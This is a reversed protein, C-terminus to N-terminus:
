RKRAPKPTCTRYKRTSVVTRGARTRARVRVTFRGKPLGTLRVRSTLRRGRVVRSRKGNVFVTASALPDGKPHQLRIGFARRSVCKDNCKRFRVSITRAKKGRARFTVKATLRHNGAGLRAPDVRAVFQGHRDPKRVTRLKRGDVMFRVHRVGKLTVYANFPKLACKGNLGLRLVQLAARKVANAVPSPTQTGAVQGSTAADSDGGTPIPGGGGGATNVCLTISASRDSTLGTTTDTAEATLVHNGDSLNTLSASWAGTTPDADAFAVAVTGDLLTVKTGPPATGTVTADRTTLCGTPATVAPAAPPTSGGGGGPTECARAIVDLGSVWDQLSADLASSSRTNVSMRRFFKCPADTPGNVADALSQLNVAAEGFTGTLFSSLGGGTPLFNTIGASNLSAEAGGAALTVPDFKGKAACDTAVSDWDTTTWRFVNILTSSGLEYSILVDGDKRCPVVSLVANTFTDRSQNLEFGVFTNGSASLRHFGLNLHAVHDAAITATSWADLIDAKDPAGASGITWGGPEEEKSNTFTDDGAGAGGDAVSVIENGDLCQWDTIAASCDGTQDGDLGDFGNVTAHAATAPVLLALLTTLLM